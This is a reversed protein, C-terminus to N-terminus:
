KIQSQKQSYNQKKTQERKTWRHIKPSDVRRNYHLCPNPSDVRRIHHPHENQSVAMRKTISEYPCFETKTRSRLFLNVIELISVSMCPVKIEM